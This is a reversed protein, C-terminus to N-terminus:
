FKPKFKEKNGLLYNELIYEVAPVVISDGLSRTRATNGMKINHGHKNLGKETWGVPFGMLREIESIEWRRVLADGGRRDIVLYPQYGCRTVFAKACKNDTDSGFGMQWRKENPKRNSGREMFSILYDRYEAYSDHRNTFAVKRPPPTGMRVESYPELNSKFWPGNKPPNTIQKFSTFFIRKRNSGTFDCGETDIIYIPKGMVESLIQVIDENTYGSRGVGRVNELIIDEFQGKMLARVVMEFTDASLDHETGYLAAAFSAGSSRSKCSFGGVLLDCPEVSKWNITDASGYNTHNPFHYRYMDIKNDIIESFGMCKSRPFVRSIALEFAGIGSFMSFYKLPYNSKLLKESHKKMYNRVGNAAGLAIFFQLLPNM